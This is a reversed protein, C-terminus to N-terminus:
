PTPRYIHPAIWVAYADMPNGQATISLGFHVTMGAIGDLPYDVVIPLDAFIYRWHKLGTKGQNDYYEFGFEVDCFSHARCALLTRFRDGSRVTFEPYKSFLTGYHDTPPFTLLVSLNSPLGQFQGPLSMAYGVDQQNDSGPCPLQQQGRSFWEANCMQAVFDFVSSGAQESPLGILAFDPTPAPTNTATATSAPVQVTPVLTDTVSVVVPTDTQNASKDTRLICSSLFLSFLLFFSIYKKMISQEKKM